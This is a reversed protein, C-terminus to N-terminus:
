LRSAPLLLGGGCALFFCALHGVVVVDIIEPAKAGRAPRERRIPKPMKATISVGEVGEVTEM